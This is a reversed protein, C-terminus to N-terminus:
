KVAPQAEAPKVRRMRLGRAEEPPRVSATEVPKVTEEPPRAAELKKQPGGRMPRRMTRKSQPEPPKVLVTAQEPAAEALLPSSFALAAILLNRVM